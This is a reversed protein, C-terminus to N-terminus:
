LSHVLNCFHHKITSWQLLVPFEDAETFDSCSYLSAGGAALVSGHDSLCISYNILWKSHHDIM